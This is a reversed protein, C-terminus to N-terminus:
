GLGMLAWGALYIAPHNAVAVIVLSVASLVSGLSMVFRAGRSDIAKGIATSVFGSALLGVTLGSFVLSRSWGTEAAIPSALVGLAYLTTGWAIIQTIGLAVIA